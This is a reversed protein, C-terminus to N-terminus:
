SEQPGHSHQEDKPLEEEESHGEVLRRDRQKPPHTGLGAVQGKGRTAGVEPDHDAGAILSLHDSAHHVGEAGLFVRRVQVFHEHYGV